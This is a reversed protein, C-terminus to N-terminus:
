MGRDNEASWMGRVFGDVLLTPRGLRTAVHAQHEPPIIRARDDYAVHVNDFEPLFRVPARIGARPLLGDPADFLERGREDRFVQLQPRLREIADRLPRLGSWTQVDGVTAPGFARLYRVILRDPSSSAAVPRGLWAEASTLIPRGSAGWVGRPPLQ